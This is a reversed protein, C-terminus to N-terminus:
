ATDGEEPGNPEIVVKVAGERRELFTALAENFQDLPFVHTILDKLQLQGSAIISNLKGAVNPNARSGLISIENQILTRFPIEERAESAPVGLLVVKGGKCVMRIGQDLTGRAGSCEFVEGVGFGNTMKLLADVPDQEEFDILSDAGMKRARELRKGRGIVIVRAAGLSRALRMAILGIPGPGIVAVEGGTTIGSLEMGHLVAGATDILSGERFGVSSDLLNLANVSVVTYQAYSGTTTFGYHAHGSHPNGYNLCLNYRGALCNRCYGCGKHAEGVVREGVALSGVGPGVAAVEGTWEHGPTFPYAPPWKGALDGRLIEPDSGCIAVARVRCLVEGPGPAPVERERIEFEGPSTLVLSKMVKPIMTDGTPIM